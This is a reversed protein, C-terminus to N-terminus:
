LSKSDLGQIPQYYPKGELTEAKHQWNAGAQEPTFSWDQRAYNWSRPDLAQAAEWYHNAKSEDGQQHFYVGLKFTPDALAVDSDPVNLNELTAAVKVYESAEGRTVWDVVMPAYDARGFEFDGMKHVAAYTGEDIRRISGAEDIWVASPVNVLGYLSSISHTQDVLTVYSAGAKDYWQRAVAEGGTDQAAAIIVFNDDALGQYVDQWGSL